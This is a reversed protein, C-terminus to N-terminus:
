YQWSWWQYTDIKTFGSQQANEIAVSNEHHILTGVIESHSLQSQGYHLSTLSWDEEIWLGKYSLTNVPVIHLKVPKESQTQNLMEGVYLEYAEGDCNLGLNSLTRHMPQNDIQVLARAIQAREAFESALLTQVLRRGIGQGQAEPAVAVLDIEWRQTGDQSTTLFGDAFGLIEGIANDAVLTIHNEDALGRVLQVIDTRESPWVQQQIMAIQGADHPTAHRIQM